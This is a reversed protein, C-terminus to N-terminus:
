CSVIRKKVCERAYDAGRGGCLTWHVGHFPPCTANMYLQVSMVILSLQQKGSGIGNCEQKEARNVRTIYQLLYLNSEWSLLVKPM